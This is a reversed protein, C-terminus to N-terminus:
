YGWTPPVCIKVHDATEVARRMRGREGLFRTRSDGANPFCDDPRYMTATNYRGGGTSKAVVRRCQEDMFVLTATSGASDSEEAHYHRPQHKDSAVTVCALAAAEYAQRLPSLVQFCRLKQRVSCRSCLNDANLVRNRGDYERAAPCEINKLRQLIGQRFIPVGLLSQWDQSDDGLALPHKLLHHHVNQITRFGHVDYAPEHDRRNVTRERLVARELSLVLDGTEPDAAIVVLRRGSSDILARTLQHSLCPDLVHAPDFDDYVSIEDVPIRARCQGRGHPDSALEAEAVIQWSRYSYPNVMKITVAEVVSGLAPLHSRTADDRRESM